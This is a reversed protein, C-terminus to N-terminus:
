ICCQFAISRTGAIKLDASEFICGGHILYIYVYIYLQLQVRVSHLVIARSRDTVRLYAFGRISLAVSAGKEGGKM